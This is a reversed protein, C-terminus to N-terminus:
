WLFGKLDVSKVLSNNNQIVKLKNKSYLAIAAYSRKHYIVTM